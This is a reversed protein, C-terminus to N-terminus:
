FPPPNPDGPLSYWFVGSDFEYMQRRTRMEDLHVGWRSALEALMEEYNKAQLWRRSVEPASGASAWYTKRNFWSLSAKSIYKSLYTAIKRSTRKYDGRIQQADVNGPSAIGPDVGLYRWVLAHWEPRLYRVDIRGHLAIHVHWHKPNTPHPEVVMVYSLRRGVHKRYRCMLLRSVKLLEFPDNSDQRTSLTLLHDACINICRRRVETRARQKARRLSDENVREGPQRRRRPSERLCEQAFELRARDVCHM